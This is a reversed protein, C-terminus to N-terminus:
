ELIQYDSYEESGERRINKVVLGVHIRFSMKEVVLYGEPLVQFDVAMEMVKLPGPNKALQLEARYIDFTEKDIYFEGEFFDKTRQKARAEVVYVPIGELTTEDLLTFEYNERNEESFPLMEELTIEMRHRREDDKDRKYKANKRERAAKERAEYAENVYKQTVDKTKGKKIEVASKISESRIKNKMLVIKRVVTKKKSKWNKDMEHMTSIASVKHDPIEPYSLVREATKEVIEQVGDTSSASFSSASFMLGASLLLVIGYRQRTNKEAKINM